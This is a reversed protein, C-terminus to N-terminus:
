RGANAETKREAANQLSLQLRGLQASFDNPDLVLGTYWVSEAPLRPAEIMASRAAERVVGVARDVWQRVGSEVSPPAAEPFSANQPLMGPIDSSGLHNKLGEFCIKPLFKAGLRRLVGRYL